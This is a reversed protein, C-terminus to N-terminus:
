KSNKKDKELMKLICYNSFDLKGIMNNFDEYTQSEIDSFKDIDFYNFTLINDVFPDVMAMFNDERLILSIISNKKKLEFTERSIAKNKITYSILNVFEEFKSAYTEISVILFDNAIIYNYGIACVSINDNILKKYATSAENFNASLSYNLYFSLRVREYPNFDSINIKYAIRIFSENIDEYTSDTKKAVKNPENDDKLQYSIKKYKFSDYTKEILEIIKEIDCKGAIALIQNEPQYFVEYCMKVIDYDFSKIDREEGVTSSFDLNNFLCKLQLENLSSFKNDKIERIEEYIPLKTIEIDEKTFCPFNVMTILKELHDEFNNNAKIYFSTKFYSTYGNSSVYNNQFYNNMNGFKSHEILLHEIFHAMGDKIHYEKNNYIFHNNSAGYRVILEAYASHKSNDQYFVVTLGNKLTYVKNM